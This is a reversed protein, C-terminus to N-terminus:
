SQTSVLYEDCAYTKQFSIYIFHFILMGCLNYCHYILELYIRFSFLGKSASTITSQDSTTPPLFLSFTLQNLDNQSKHKLINTSLTASNLAHCTMSKLYKQKIAALIADDNADHCPSVYKPMFHISNM